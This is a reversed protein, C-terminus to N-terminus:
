ATFSLLGVSLCCLAETLLCLAKAHQCRREALVFRDPRLSSHEDIPFVLDATSLCLDHPLVFLDEALRERDEVL